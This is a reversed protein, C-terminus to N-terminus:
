RRPARGGLARAIAPLEARRVFLTGAALALYAAAFVLRVQTQPFVLQGSFLLLLAWAEWRRLHLDCLVSFGLLTQAATLAVEEVQRADLPLPGLGGGVAHAIPLSGILLTWQGSRQVDTIQIAIDTLTQEEIDEFM